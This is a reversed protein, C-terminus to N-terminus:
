FARGSSRRRRRTSWTRARRPRLAPTPRFATRRPSSRRGCSRSRPRRSRANSNAPEKVQKEKMEARVKAREKESAMALALAEAEADARVAQDLTQAAAANKGRKSDGVIADVTRRDQEWVQKLGALQTALRDIKGVSPRM